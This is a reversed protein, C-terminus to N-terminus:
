TTILLPYNSVEAMGEELTWFPFDIPPLTMSKKVHWAVQAAISEILAREESTGKGKKVAVDITRSVMEVWRPHSVVEERALVQSWAVLPTPGSLIPLCRAAIDGGDKARQSVGSSSDSPTFDALKPHSLVSDQLLSAEVQLETIPAGKRGPVGFRPDYAKLLEMELRGFYAAAAGEGAATSLQVLYYTASAAVRASTARNVEQGVMSDQVMNAVGQLALHIAALAKHVAPPPQLLALLPALFNHVRLAGEQVLMEDPLTASVEMAILLTKVSKLRALQETVYPQRYEPGLSGVASPVNPGALSASDLSYVSAVLAYVAQAFTRLLPKSAAELRPRHINQADLPNAEWVPRDPTTVIFHPLLVSAARRAAQWQGLRCAVLCLHSWCMYIPLPLAALIECTSSGLGSSVMAGSEDYGAVAFVYTDNARLGQITVPLGLPTQVGSGPYEMGTKNVSLGVGAGYSKAYVAYNVPQKSSAPSPSFPFHVLTCTHNSRQLIKPPLPTGKSGSSAEKPQSQSFLSDESAQAKVLLDAAESLMAAQKYGESQFTAMQTLLLAKEYPNKAVAQLLEREKLAPNSSIKGAQAIKEDDERKEKKTRPGFVESQSDRKMTADELRLVKASAKSKQEYVGILLEVRFRIAVADAHLCALDQLLPSSCPFSSPFHVM